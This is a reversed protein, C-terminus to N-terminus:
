KKYSNLLDILDSIRKKMEDREVDTSNHILKLKKLVYYNPTYGVDNKKNPDAGHKLLWNTYEYNVEGASLHLATSEEFFRIGQDWYINALEINYDTWYIALEEWLDNDSYNAKTLTYNNKILHKIADIRNNIMALNYITQGKENTKYIDAGYDLMTKFTDFDYKLFANHFITSGMDNLDKNVDLGKELLKIFLNKKNNDIAWNVLTNNSDVAVDPPLRYDLLIFLLDFDNKGLLITFDNYNLEYNDISAALIKVLDQNETQIALSLQESTPKIGRNIIKNLRIIDQELIAKELDDSSPKCSAILFAASVLLLMRM